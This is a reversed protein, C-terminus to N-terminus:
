EEINKLEVTLDIRCIDGIETTTFDVDAVGDMDIQSILEIAQTIIAKQIITKDVEVKIEQSQLSIEGSKIDEAKIVGSHIEM